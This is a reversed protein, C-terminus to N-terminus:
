TEQSTVISQCHQFWMALETQFVWSVSGISLMLLVLLVISNINFGVALVSLQPLTRAILGTLLNAMLLATAIPAAARIGIRLMNRMLHDFQDLWEVQPVVAGAPFAEYSLLCCEILQRHGGLILLLATVLWGLLSALVSMSEDSNPDIAEAVDFGALHGMAQGALQFASVALLVVSGVILGLLMEAALCLLVDILNTPLPRALPLAIPTLMAAMAVALMSRVRTPVGISRTPPSLALVPGVRALVTMFVWLPATLLTSLLDMGM